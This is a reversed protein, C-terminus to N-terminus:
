FFCLLTDDYGLLLCLNKVSPFFLFIMLCLGLISLNSKMLILIRNILVGSHTFLYAVSHPNTKLVLLQCFVWICLYLIGLFWYTNLLSVVWDKCIPLSISCVTWLLIELLGIFRLLQEMYNIILSISMLGCHLVLCM